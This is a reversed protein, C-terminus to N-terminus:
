VREILGEQELQHLLTALERRCTEPEVEYREIMLSCLQDLSAPEELTRWVDAAVSEMGYCFGNAVHLAVIDDGVPAVLAQESRRYTQSDMDTM